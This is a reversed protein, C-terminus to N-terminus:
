ERLSPAVLLPRFSIYYEPTLSHLTSTRREDTKPKFLVLLMETCARVGPNGKKKIKQVFTSVREIAAVDGHFTALVAQRKAHFERLREQLAAKESSAVMLKTRGAEGNNFATADYKNVMSTGDDSVSVADEEDAGKIHAFFEKQGHVRRAHEGLNDRRGFGRGIRIYSTVPYFFGHKHHKQPQHWRVDDINGFRPTICGTM